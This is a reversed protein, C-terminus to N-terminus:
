AQYLEDEKKSHCASIIALSRRHILMRGLSAISAQHSRIKYFPIVRGRKRVVDAKPFTIEDFVSNIRRARYESESRPGIGKSNFGRVSLPGGLFLRRFSFFVNAGYM